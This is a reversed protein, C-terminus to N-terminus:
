VAILAPVMEVVNLPNETSGPLGEKRSGLGLLSQNEETMIVQNTHGLVKHLYFWEAQVRKKDPKKWKTYKSM